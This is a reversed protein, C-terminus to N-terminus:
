KSSWCQRTQCLGSARWTRPSRGQTWIVVDKGVHRTRQPYVSLLALTPRHQSPSPVSLARPKRPPTPAGTRSSAQARTGPRSPAALCPPKRTRRPASCPWNQNSTPTLTGTAVEQTGHDVHAAGRTSGHLPPLAPRPLPGHGRQSSGGAQQSAAERTYHCATQEAHAKQSAENPRMRYLM